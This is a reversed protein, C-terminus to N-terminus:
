CRELQFYVTKEGSIRVRDAYATEPYASASYAEIGWSLNITEINKYQVHMRLFVGESEENTCFLYRTITASNEDAFLTAHLSPRDQSPLSKPIAWLTPADLSNIVNVYGKHHPAMWSSVIARQVDAPKKGFCIDTQLLDQPRQGYEMAITLCSNQDVRIIELIGLNPFFDRCQWMYSVNVVVRQDDSEYLREAAFKHDFVAASLPRSGCGQDAICLTASHVDVARLLILFFIARM